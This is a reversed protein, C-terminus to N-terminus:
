VSGKCGDAGAGTIRVPLIAGPAAQPSQVIVPTYNRTYGITSGDERLTEFLAEQTSGIQAEWFARRSRDTVATMERARLERVPAPVQGPLEAARTGARVSYPFVHARALGLERVFDLSQQFEEDTEGPFGVMLDTTVAADPFLTRIREALARYEGSSYRRNMRRLTADCGSQLSLHFQPCFADLGRLRLLEAETLLDPELSGLRVRKVGEVGCAAEVADALTHEEGKGYSSLNIGVLVIERYGNAALGALERCLEPLPKSRVPGRAKPIICYSCWRDCGDEIKVFARTHGAFSDAQMSEFPEGSQHPLIETVRLCGGNKRDDLVQRVDDLLRARDRAGLVIDAEELAMAEQPFAQPYCGTLAIVALPNQRRFRRLLQRTKQDGVSTVTCSNIIYVDAQESPDAVTFGAARFQAALAQAEYQNVKCGLTFFAAKM